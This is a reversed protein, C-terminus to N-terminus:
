HNEMVEWHGGKDPGIRRLRGAIKLNSIHKIVVSQVIGCKRSLESITISPNEKVCIKM